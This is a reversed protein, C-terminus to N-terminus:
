KLLENFRQKASELSFNKKVIEKNKELDNKDREYKSVATSLTSRLDELDRDKALYIHLGLDRLEPFSTNDYCICQLQNVLSELVVNSMGEGYSPFLLLHAKSYYEQINDSFGLLKIKDSYPKSNISDKLLTLENEFDTGGIFTMEFDINQDQLISLAEVADSQGKRKDIRGVHLLTLKNSPKRKLVKSLDLSTYIVRIKGKSAPIIKAVNKAIHSSVAVHYNVSRYIIKHYTSRKRKGKTTGHQVIINIGLGLTALFIAGLESAGFFILNDINNRKIIRRLQFSLRVSLKSNFSVVFRKITTDLKEKSVSDLFTDQKCIFHVQNDKALLNAIKMSDLEMGGQYPSLCLVACTKRSM